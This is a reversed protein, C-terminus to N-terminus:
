NRAFFRVRADTQGQNPEFYLPLNGYNAAPQVRSAIPTADPVTGALCPFSLVAIALLAGFISFRNQTM